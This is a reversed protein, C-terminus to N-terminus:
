HGQETFRLQEAFRRLSARDPLQLREMLRHLYDQLTFKSLGMRGAAEPSSLGSAILGLLEMLRPSLGYRDMIRRRRHDAHEGAEVLVVVQRRDTEGDVVVGRLKLVLGIRHSYLRVSPSHVITWPDARDEFISRLTQDIYGLAAALRQHAFSDMSYGDFLAMEQFIAQAMADAAIVRGGRGLVIVGESWDELPAFDSSREPPSPARMAVSLAHAIYPAAAQAFRVDDATFPKMDAGRWIPYAGSLGLHDRLNIFLGHHFAIHRMCENYGESRYFHPLAVEEHTRVVKGQLVSPVPIVGSVQPPSDLYFHKYVPNWKALESPSTIYHDPHHGDDALLVRNAGHPIADGMLEFLARALPYLPLGSSCIRKIRRLAIEKNAHDSNPPVSSPRNTVGLGPTPASSEQARRIQRRRDRRDPESTRLIRRCQRAGLVVGYHDHLHQALLKGSWSAQSFGLKSPPRALEARLRQLDKEPLSRPRGPLRRTAKSATM